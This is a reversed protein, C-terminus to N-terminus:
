PLNRGFGPCFRFTGAGYATDTSYWRFMLLGLLNQPLQWDHLLIEKLVNM